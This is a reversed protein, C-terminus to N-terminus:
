PRRHRRVRWVLLALVYVGLLVPAALVAITEASLGCSPDCAADNRGSAAIARPGALVDLLVAVVSRTHRRRDRGCYEPPAVAEM